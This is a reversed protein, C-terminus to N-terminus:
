RSFERNYFIIFFFSHVLKLKTPWGANFAFKSFRAIIQLKTMKSGHIVGSFLQRILIIIAFDMDKSSLSSVLEYMMEMTIVLDSIASKNKTLQKPDGVFYQYVSKKHIYGIENMSLYKTIFLQDEGMKSKPFRLFDISDRRFLFRWIGPNFAIETMYRDTLNNVRITEGLDHSIESYGGVACFGSRNECEVIMSQYENVLPIDDSDWFAIWTGTAVELGANRAAGPSGYNGDLLVFSDKEHRSIIELLEARTSDSSYDDILIIELMSLDSMSLWHNLNGLRGSMNHVPIIVSLRKQNKPNSGM